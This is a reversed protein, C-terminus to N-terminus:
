DKMVGYKLDEPPNGLQQKLEELKTSCEEPMGASVILNECRGTANWHPDLKSYLYWSGPKPGFISM